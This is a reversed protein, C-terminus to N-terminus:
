LIVIQPIFTPAPTYDVVLQPEDGLYWYRSYWLIARDTNLPLVRVGTFGSRNFYDKMDVSEAWEDAGSWYIDGISNSPNGYDDPSTIDEGMSGAWIKCAEDSSVYACKAKFKVSNITAGTLGTSSDNTNFRWHAEHIISDDSNRSAENYVTDWTSFFSFSDSDIYGEAEYNDINPYIILQAM